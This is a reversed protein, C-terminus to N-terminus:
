AHPVGKGIQQAISAIEDLLALCEAAPEKKWDVVEKALMDLRNRLMVLVPLPSNRNEKPPPLKEQEALFERFEAEDGVDMLLPLIDEAWYDVMPQVQRQNDWGNRKAFEELM